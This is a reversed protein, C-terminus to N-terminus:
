TVFPSCCPHFQHVARVYAKLSRRFSSFDALINHTHAMDSAPKEEMYSLLVVVETFWGILWGVEQLMQMHVVNSAPKEEM